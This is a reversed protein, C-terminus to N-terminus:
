KIKEGFKAEILSDCRQVQIISDKAKLDRLDSLERTLHRIKDGKSINSILNIILCGFLLGIILEKSKM